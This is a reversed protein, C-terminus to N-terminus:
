LRESTAGVLQPHLTGFPMQGDHAVLGVTIKSAIAFKCLRRPLFPKEQMREGGGHM